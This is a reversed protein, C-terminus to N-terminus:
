DGENSLQYGFVTGGNKLSVVYPDFIFGSAGLAEELDTLLDMQKALSYLEGLSDTAISETLRTLPHAASQFSAIIKDMHSSIQHRWNEDDEGDDYDRWGRVISPIEKILKQDPCENAILFSAKRVVSIHGAGIRRAQRVLILFKRTAYYLSRRGLAKKYAVPQKKPSHHKCYEDSFGPTYFRVKPNKLLEKARATTLKIEDPNQFVRLVEDAQETFRHCLQCYRDGPGNELFDVESHLMAKAKKKPANRRKTRRTDISTSRPKGEERVTCIMVVEETDGYHACCFFSFYVLSSSTPGLDPFMLNFDWGYQAEMADCLRDFCLSGRLGETALMTSFSFPESKYKALWDQVPGDVHERVLPLINRMSMSSENAKHYEAVIDHVNRIGAAVREDTGQDIKRDREMAEDHNQHGTSKKESM